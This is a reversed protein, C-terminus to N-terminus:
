AAHKAADSSKSETSASASSKSDAEVPVQRREQQRNPAPMTIELVGDQFRAKAQQPDVGDPLPIRRFFYGYQRESRQVGGEDTEREVQREGSLVLGDDDIEVQVDSPSMGPLDALVRLTGDKESVEVRPVFAIARSSEDSSGSPQLARDLDETIRRFLSFPALSIMEFPSLSFDLSGTQQRRAVGRNDAPRRALGGQQSPRNQEQNSTSASSQQNESAM